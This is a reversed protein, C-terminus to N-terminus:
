GTRAKKNSGQGRNRWQVRKRKRSEGGDSSTGGASAAGVFHAASYGDVRVDDDGGGAALLRGVADEYVCM